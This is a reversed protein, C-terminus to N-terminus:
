EGTLHRSRSFRWQYPSPTSAADADAAPCGAFLAKRADDSSSVDPAREPQPAAALWERANDVVGRM